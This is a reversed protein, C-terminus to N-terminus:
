NDNAGNDIWRQLAFVDCPALPGAPPMDKIIVARQKVAAANAAVNAYTSLDPTQAGPVHCGSIACNATMLPAIKASYGSVSTDCNTASGEPYLEESIDYYCGSFLALSSIIMMIKKV